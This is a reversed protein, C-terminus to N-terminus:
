LEAFHSHMHFTCGLKDEDTGGGLCHSIHIVMHKWTPRAPRKPVLPRAMVNTAESCSEATKFWTWSLNSTSMLGRGSLTSGLVYMFTAYPKLIGNSDHSAVHSALTAIKGAM